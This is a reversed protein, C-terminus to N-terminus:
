RMFAVVDQSGWLAESYLAIRPSHQLLENYVWNPSSISIGYDDWGVYNRFGFGTEELDALLGARSEETLGYTAGGTINRLVTRGHVTVIAIGEPKLVSKFLKLFGPWRDSDIHTLLSGCWIVDYPGGLEITSPDDHGQIPTAGFVRACFGIADADIDCASLRAEPFAAKLMRMVRGHGSPMDLIDSPESNGAAHMAIRIAHLASEGLEGYRDPDSSYMMDRPSIEDIM